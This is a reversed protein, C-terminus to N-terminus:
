GPMPDKRDGDLNVPWTVQVRLDKPNKLDSKLDDHTFSVDFKSGEPLVGKERLHAAIIERVETGDVYVTTKTVTQM